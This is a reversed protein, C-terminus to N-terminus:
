CPSFEMTAVDLARAGQRPEFFSKADDIYFGGGGPPKRAFTMLVCTTRTEDSSAIEFLPELASGNWRSQPMVVNGPPAAPGDLLQVQHHEFFTQPDLQPTM